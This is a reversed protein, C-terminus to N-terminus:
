SQGSRCDATIILPVFNMKESCMLDVTAVYTTTSSTTRGQVVLTSCKYCVHDIRTCHVCYHVQGLGLVLPACAIMEQKYIYDPDSASTGGNEVM